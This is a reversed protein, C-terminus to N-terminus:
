RKVKLKRSPIPVAKILEDYDYKGELAEAATVQNESVGIEKNNFFFRHSPVSLKGRVFDYGDKTPKVLPTDDEAEATTIFGWYELTEFPVKKGEPETPVACWDKTNMYEGVMNILRAVIIPSLKRHYARVMRGCLPCACSEGMEMSDAVDQQADKLAQEEHCEPFGSLDVSTMKIKKRPM